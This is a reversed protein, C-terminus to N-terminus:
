HEFCSSLQNVLNNLLGSRDTHSVPRSALAERQLAIADDLDKNNGQHEFRSSLQSALNNLSMSWDTHGVPYLALAERQLAIAQDLKSISLTDGADVKFECGWVCAPSNM